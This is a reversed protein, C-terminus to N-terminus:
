SLPTAFSPDPPLCDSRPVLTDSVARPNWGEPTVSVPAASSAAVEATAAVDCQFTTGGPAPAHWKLEGTSLRFAGLGFPERICNEVYITDFEPCVAYTHATHCQANANLAAM